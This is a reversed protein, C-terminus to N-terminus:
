LIQPNALRSWEWKTLGANYIRFLENNHCNERESLSPDFRSGLRKELSDRRFSSKHARRKGDIVKYDPKVKGTVVFDLIEYMKGSFMSDDSYSVVSDPKHEKIFYKFLKSAGGVVSYRCAYRLLEYRGTSINGRESSPKSFTMCAVMEDSDYLAYIIDGQYPAGQMHYKNYFEKVDPLKHQKITTKRAYITKDSVGLLHKLTHKVTDQRFGWDDEYLHFLHVGEAKCADTKNKHRRIPNKANEPRDSHWYLGNFEIAFNKDPVYVDLEKGILTRNRRETNPQLSQVFKFLEIEAKSDQRGCSPCGYGYLHESKRQRFVGHNKCLVDVFKDNIYFDSEYYVYKHKHVLNAKNVFMTYTHSKKQANSMNACKPCGVGSKHSHYTQSFDGHIKCSICVKERSLMYVVKSYDYTNGHRAVFEKIVEEQTLRKNKSRTLVGCQYCEHLLHNKPTQEFEGHVHCVIKFLTNYDIYSGRSYDYRDGYKELARSLFEAYSVGTKDKHSEYKCKRCGDGKCHQAVTQLFDGHKKCTIIIKDTAKKFSVKSYDFKYGHVATARELFLERSIPKM